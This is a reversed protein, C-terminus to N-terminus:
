TLGFRAKDIAYNAAIEASSLIRNYARMNMVHYNAGVGNFYMNTYSAAYETTYKAENGDQFVNQLYGSVPDFTLTWKKPCMPWNPFTPIKTGRSSGRLFITYFGKTSAVDFRIKDQITGDRESILFYEKNLVLLPFDVVFELTGIAGPVRETTSITKSMLFSTEDWQDASVNNFDIGSPSLDKWTTASQDHVGWGANEIGDWMVILGDQVYDRATPVGGGSKAWVATRAGVIM